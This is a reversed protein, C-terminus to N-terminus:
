PHVGFYTGNNVDELSYITWQSSDYNSSGTTIDSNRSLGTNEAFASSDGPIGIIDLIIDTGEEYTGNHNTDEILAITDNGNFYTVTSGFSNSTDMKDKIAEVAGSNYIGYVSGSAVTTDADFNKIYGTTLTNANPALIMFVNETGDAERLDIDETGANFVELYKNNSSGEGYDSFFLGTIGTVTGGATLLELLVPSPSLNGLYDEAVAYIDYNTDITLGTLNVTVTEGAADTISSGSKLENSTPPTSGDALVSYYVIGDENLMFNLDFSTETINTVSPYGSLWGPATSDGTSEVYFRALVPDHDTSRVQSSYESYRHVIDVEPSVAFLGGSVLIYDLQQSNGNYIYSYQETETLLEETLNFLAEGKLTQLPNSFQFDNLDGAVIIKADYQIGLIQDVFNNIAAAQVMREAESGLVPPQNEGFLANDGGKSNFHNAIVFIQEGNFHFKGILPRRSDSFSSVSIRGPSLSIEATGGNDIVQTDTVANGNGIDEFTVRGSNFLFGVRINAGEWGGEDNNVPPIERFDYLNSGGAAGIAEILSAYNNAATVVGNNASFSDDTMEEIVIIDPCNLGNVISDAIESIKNQIETSTMDEDDRPYNELNFSAVTLHDDDGTISSVERDLTNHIINPLVTPLVVFKGYSYGIIGKIPENFMDGAKAEMPPLGLIYYDSDIPIINPNYNTESISLGGRATYRESLANDGNDAVVPIEGYKDGGVAVANNIQVLMNEICEYFDIADELPDFTSNYVDGAADNCIITNPLIRGGIGLVVPEPLPYGSQLTATVTPNIIETLKLADTYGHEKVTGDVVVLDGVEVAPSSNMYVLIGESTAIDNDYVPSQMWFGKGDKATVIGIIDTLLDGVFESTHGNGQIDHIQTYASFDLTSFDQGSTNEILTISSNEPNFVHGNHVPTLTYVGAPIDNFLYSGDVGTIASYDTTGSLLLEVGSLPLNESTVMGSLSFNGVVETVHFTSGTSGARKGDVTFVVVDLYYFGPTLNGVVATEGTAFSEGNIYWVYVLNETEDPASATVSMTSFEPLESTSGDLVVNVPDDMQQIINVDITGGPKNIEYYDFVGSTTAGKVIRVVEVRGITNIGNDLLKLTLTYYGTPIADSSFEASNGTVTFELTVPSGSSPTLTADVSPIELDGGTWNVKLDLTGLGDYPTTTISVETTVGTHVTAYSSGYGIDFGNDNKCFVEIEWDGFSLENIQVSHGSTTVSFTAGDPGTGIILYEYIDMSENPLLSRSVNQDLSIVLSPVNEVPDIIQDCGTLFLFIVMVGVIMKKIM